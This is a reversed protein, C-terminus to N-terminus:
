KGEGALIFPAWFYPHATSITPSVASSDSKTPTVEGLKGVGGIGRRALLESNTKGRILQLQAQRLAEVKTMTKLNKYFSSMLNATSSDEVNWLSAVVSPTGAYIFARTLGVLEDGSSLKGLGTECASLVILSAKLNMGFIERVELRGDEKDNRALLIASALPDGESLEAHSAFHIIDNQPSLTKARDETAEKELYVSSQPYLTKIEKAEVGAYRLSKKPDGLDPNGLALVKGSQALISALEGKAKRKEQTFQMLSASSLYNIPYDEILYKGQPSLLAQFPLYHLVDHPIILLEKGKIHPLASQILLKYLDQSLVDLKDRDALDTIAERFSTVKSIIQQRNLGIRVVSVREKEVVWLISQDRLVFYELVTVGSDLLEQVQKLTLPEVSMLSAQEKNEKRVKSLFEAYAKEAAELEKRQEAPGEKGGEEGDERQWSLATRLEAMRAQLVREEEVLASQRGLQAKNGLTDLFARSRARENFNFADDVKDAALHALIMGGYIQGKDEFFSTRFEESDLLSRTSEISDIAKKYYPVAELPKATQLFLEGITSSANQIVFTQRRTDAIQLVKSLNDMARPFDKQALYAKGLGLVHDTAPNKLRATEHLTLGRQFAKIAEEPSGADLYANGLVILSNLIQSQREAIQQPNVQRRRSNFNLSSELLRLSYSAHEIAEKIEGQRLYNRALQRYLRGKFFEQDGPVANAIDLGKKLWHREKEPQGVDAYALALQQMSLSQLRPDKAREALEVAKTGLSIAKALQGMSKASYSAESYARAAEPWHEKKEAESGIVEMAAQFEKVRGKSIADRRSNVTPEFSEQAAVPWVFFLASLFVFLSRKV